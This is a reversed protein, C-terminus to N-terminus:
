LRTMMIDVFELSSEVAVVDHSAYETATMGGGGGGGDKKKRSNVLSL